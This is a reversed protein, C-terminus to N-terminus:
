VLFIGFLYFALKQKSDHPHRCIYSGVLVTEGSQPDSSWGCKFGTSVMTSSMRQWVTTLESNKVFAVLACNKDRISVYGLLQYIADTFHKVGRWIKCEVILINVDGNRVLLDTKGLGNFTEASVQGRFKSNLAVLLVQRLQEEKWERWTQPAKEMQVGAGDLCILVETLTLSRRTGQQSYSSIASKQERRYEENFSDCLTRYTRQDIVNNSYDIKLQELVSVIAACRYSSSCSQRITPKEDSDSVDGFPRLPNIASM